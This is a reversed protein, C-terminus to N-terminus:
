RRDVDVPSLQFLCSFENYEGVYATITYNKGATLDFESEDKFQFSPGRASDPSFNGAGVLYNFSGAVGAPSADAVNGDFRITEGAYTEAFQAVAESCEDRSALINKLEPTNSATLIEPRRPEPSTTEVPETSGVTAPTSPATPKPQEPKEKACSRKVALRPREGMPKGAAPSQTCVTWNSEVVVGFLGGGDIDVSDKDELGAKAIQAYAVDLKEGVVDPMLEPDDGGCGALTLSILLLSLFTKYM